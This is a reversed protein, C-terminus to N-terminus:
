QGSGCFPKEADIVFFFFNKFFMYLNNNNNNLTDNRGRLNTKLHGELSIGLVILSFMLAYSANNNLNNWINVARYHFTKQWTVTAHRFLPINLMQWFQMGQIKRICLKITIIKM